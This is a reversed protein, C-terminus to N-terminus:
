LAGCAPASRLAKLDAAIKDVRAAIETDGPLHGATEAQFTEVRMLDMGDDAQTEAEIMLRVSRQPVVVRSGESSVFHRRADKAGDGVSRFSLRVPVESRSRIVQAVMTGAAPQDPCPPLESYDAHIQSRSKSFDPSTDEEKANVETATKVNLYAKSAKRYEGYTLQWLM